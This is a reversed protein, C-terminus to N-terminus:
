PSGQKGLRTYKAIDTFVPCQQGLRVFLHSM